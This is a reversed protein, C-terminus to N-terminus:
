NNKQYIKIQLNIYGAKATDSGSSIDQYFPSGKYITINMDENRIILGCERITNEINDVVAWINEYSTAGIEYISIAQMFNEGFNGATIDYQFFVGSPKNANAPLRGGRIATAFQSLWKYLIMEYKETM